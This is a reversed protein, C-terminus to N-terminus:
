SNMTLVVRFRANGSMMRAYAEAAKELPFVENMSRVNNIASFNLTDESDISTGSPWGAVSLKSTVLLLGSVPIPEPAIGLVILKGNPALGGVCSAMAQSNNATALVVSAGGLKQLAKAPDEVASDIYHHAGLKKALDDKDAGRAIAVTRHGMRAAFQVGLHGLGGIGLVAVLSGARPTANRLSNFTTVGACLLPGAAVPDLDDPIRALGEFPALVYDAYGGDFHVGTILMNVCTMFDGRRCSECHGCNGGFWGIGVRQGVKWEPPVEEGLADIVGAVEHGPVRPYKLGPWLGEVTVTDSHCVGCAQVKVRVHGRGPNPIPREVLELPGNPKSVQVARMQSSM